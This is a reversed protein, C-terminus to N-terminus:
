LEVEHLAGPAFPVQNGTLELVIRGLDPQHGVVLVTEGRGRVADRLSQTTAGPALRVDTQPPLGTEKAIREATEVARVLPSTLVAALQRHALRRGLAGAAARGAPTLRRLADPDGPRAEAHRVLLVRV